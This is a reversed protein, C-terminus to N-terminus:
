FSLLYHHSIQFSYCLKPNSKCSLTTTTYNLTSFVILFNCVLQSTTWHCVHGEGVWTGVCVHTPLPPPVNQFNSNTLFVFLLSCILHSWQGWSLIPNFDTTLFVYIFVLLFSFIRTSSTRLAVLCSSTCQNM